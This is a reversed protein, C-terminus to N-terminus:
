IGYAKRLLEIPHTATAGEAVTAIQEAAM